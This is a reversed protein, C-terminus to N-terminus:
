GGDFFEVMVVFKREEADRSVNSEFNDILNNLGVEGVMEVEVDEVAEFGVIFLVGEYGIFIEFFDKLINMFKVFEIFELEEPFNEVRNFVARLVNIQVNDVM